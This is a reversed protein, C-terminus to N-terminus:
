TLLHASRRHDIEGGLYHKLRQGNVTFKRDFNEEQIKVHGYPSAKTVVFPGSWQSKLKRPFLKLRSNYLLVRQGPEFVRIAIKKDHLLKTKELISSPMRMPQIYSNMLSM